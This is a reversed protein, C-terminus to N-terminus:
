SAQCPKTKPRNLALPSSRNRHGPVIHRLPLTSSFLPGWMFQGNISASCAHMYAGVYACAQRSLPLSAQALTLPLSGPPYPAHAYELMALFKRKCVAVLMASALGLACM